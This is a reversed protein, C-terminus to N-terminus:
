QNNTKRKKPLPRATIIAPLDTHFVKISVPLSKSVPPCKCKHAFALMEIQELNGISVSPCKCKHAFVIIEIQELNRISVPLCKCKHAFGLM